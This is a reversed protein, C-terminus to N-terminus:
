SKGVSESDKLRTFIPPYGFSLCNTENFKKVGEASTLLCQFVTDSKLNLDQEFGIRRLIERASTPIVPYLLISSLRLTEVTASLITQLWPYQDPVQVLMKWPAHRDILLNAQHCHQMVAAIGKNFDFSDYHRKVIDPLNQLSRILEFDEDSARCEPSGHFNSGEFTPFLEPHFQLRPGGPNLRPTSIRQLLNGLTNPLDANTTAVLREESYDGDHQISGEKLLFYRLPDVGYKSLISHPDVVNGKSKSMKSKGITWHAHSVIRRPLPLGAAMLFAPWYVAHFKLIDKGVIQNTAPWVSGCIETGNDHRHTQSNHSMQSPTLSVTLYNVLADLWVYITQSSDNPVPVGWHLRSRPRSVSLDSNTEHLLWHRVRQRSSEPIVPYPRSDIWELLRDQFSSLRFMYNEESSWEVPHGTEV